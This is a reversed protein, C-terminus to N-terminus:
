WNESPKAKPHYNKPPPNQLPLNAKILRYMASFYSTTTYIGIKLSCVKNLFIVKIIVCM